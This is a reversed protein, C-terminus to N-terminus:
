EAQSSHRAAQLEPIRVALVVGCVLTLLAALYMEDEWPLHYLVVEHCIIYGVINGFNPNTAWFALATADRNRDWKQNIIMLLNPWTYSQIFGNISMLIMLTPLNNLQNDIAFPIFAYSIACLCM